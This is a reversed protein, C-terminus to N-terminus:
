EERLLELSTRRFVELSGSAGLALTLAVVGAGFGLLPLAPLVFRSEFLFRVLAWSALSALVVGTTGALLGLAAYEAVVVRVVQRRTAGLAKLLM